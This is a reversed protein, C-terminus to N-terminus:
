AARAFRRAILALCAEFRDLAGLPLAADSRLVPHGGARLAADLMLNDANGFDEIALGEGDCWRRSQVDYLAPGTALVRDLYDLPHNTYGYCPTGLATLFGLEFATGTDAEPGRFPSLNLVACDAERMMRVNGAYILDDLAPGGESSVAENDFPFLGELGHRACAEKKIRGLAIADPLFVEPGALYVKPREPM